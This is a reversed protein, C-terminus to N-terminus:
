RAAASDELLALVDDKGEAKLKDSKLAEVERALRRAERAKRNAETRHKTERLWEWVFGIMLGSAVGIMVVSFLPMDASLNFGTFEALGDPMLSLTVVQRNAMTITILCLAMLALFAWKLYRLM